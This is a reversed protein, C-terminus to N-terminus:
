VTMLEYITIHALKRHPGKWYGQTKYHGSTGEGHDGARITAGYAKPSEDTHITMTPKGMVPWIPRHHMTGRLERWYLLDKIAPHSLTVRARPARSGHGPAKFFTALQWPRQNHGGQWASGHIISPPSVGHRASGAEHEPGNRNFLSIRTISSESFQM